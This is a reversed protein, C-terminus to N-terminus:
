SHHVLSEGAGTQQNRIGLSSEQGLPLVPAGTAKTRTTEVGLEGRPWLPPVPLYPLDSSYQRNPPPIAGAM